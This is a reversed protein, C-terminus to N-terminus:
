VQQFYEHQFLPKKDNKLYERRNEIITIKNIIYIFYESREPLILGIKLSQRQGEVMMSAYIGIPIQIRQILLEQFWPQQEM